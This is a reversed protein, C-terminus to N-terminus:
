PAVGPEVPGFTYTVMAKSGDDARRALIANAAAAGVMLSRQLSDADSVRALDTQFMGDIETLDSRPANDDRGASELLGM